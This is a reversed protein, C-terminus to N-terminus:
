PSEPIPPAQTEKRYEKVKTAMVEMDDWMNKVAGEYMEKEARLQEADAELRSLRQRDMVWGISVAVLATAWFFDRLSFQPRTM